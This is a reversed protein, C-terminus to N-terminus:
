EMQCQDDVIVDGCCFCQCVDEQNMLWDVVWM